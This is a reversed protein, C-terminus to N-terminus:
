EKLFLKKFYRISEDRSRIRRKAKKFESKRYDKEQSILKLEHKLNENEEKLYNLRRNKVSLEHETYDLANTRAKVKAKLFRVDSELDM